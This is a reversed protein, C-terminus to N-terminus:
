EAAVALQSEGRQEDQAPDDAPAAAPMGPVDLGLAAFAEREAARQGLNAEWDGGTSEITEAELTSLGTEIRLQAAQAEKVPDVWGRGPGIWHGALWGAPNDYLDPCGAPQRIMGRDLAEEIVALLVPQAMQNQVLRRADMIQRWTEVLAARASSYNTKSWDMSLQEYSMGFGSALAQLFATQFQAYASAQRQATMMELKDTPWLVPLKSGDSLRPNVEGYYTDRADASKAMSEIDLAEEVDGRSRDTYIVAAFLANVAAAQLESDGYRALMKFKRLGAVLASVGRKEGARTKKRLHVVVPRGWDTRAEVREWRLQKGFALPDNPHAERIHFAVTQRGDTEVGNILTPSDMRGMPSSLRDPDVIQMSTRWRWGNLHDATDEEDWRLVALGEGDVLYHRVMLNALGGWTLDREWDARFMPDYAWNEWAAEIEGALQDAEEFPIGLRKAMLSAKASYRFDNGVIMALPREVAAVAWPENAVLDRTRAVATGREYTWARDPPLLPPRWAKLVQDSTSAARRSADMGPAYSAAPRPLIVGGASRYEPADTM